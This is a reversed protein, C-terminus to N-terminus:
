IIASGLSLRQHRKAYSPFGAQYLNADCDCHAIDSYTFSLWHDTVKQLLEPHRGLWIQNQRVVEHMEPTLCRTARESFPLVIPSEALKKKVIFWTDTDTTLPQDLRLWLTQNRYHQHQGLCMVPAQYNCRSGFTGSLMLGMKFAADTQRIKNIKAEDAAKNFSEFAFQWIAENKKFLRALAVTAEVDVIAQHAPGDALGNLQSLNELKLSPRGDVKPWQCIEPAYLYYLVAM